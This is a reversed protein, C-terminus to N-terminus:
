PGWPLYIPPPGGEPPLPAPRGLLYGQGREVGLAVLRELEAEREIGEAVIESDIEAAFSILGTALAQKSRDSHIDRVLSTDLKIMDPRLELIHRLSSYGAGADDIALRMGHARLNAVTEALREYDDIPAHETLEAVLRSSETGAIVKLFGPSTITAPSVNISMFAGAPLRGLDEVARRVALLELEERLGVVAAESFWHSPSRRASGGFRAFAEAGVVLRDRLGVIPQLDIGVSDPFRLVRGIRREIAEYKGRDRYRTTLMGSLERIVDGTVDVSLSGRGTAALKIAEVIEDTSDGKLLYGVAGAELMQLVSERAGDSSFAIVKTGAFRRGIGRAATVGGGGPMQVDVLAVDPRMVGALAIAAPADEATAVLEFSPEAAIVEGLLSRFGPDDEAILVRLRPASMRGTGWVHGRIREADADAAWPRSAARKWALGTQTM